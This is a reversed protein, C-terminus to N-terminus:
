RSAERTLSHQVTVYVLEWLIGLVLPVPIGTYEFDNTIKLYFVGTNGELGPRGKKSKDTTFDTEQKVNELCCSSRTCFILIFGEKRLYLFGHHTDPFYFAWILKHHVYKFLM